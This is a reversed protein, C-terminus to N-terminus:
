FHNTHCKNLHAYRELYFCTPQHAQRDFHRCHGQKVLTRRIDIRNNDTFSLVSVFSLLIMIIEINICLCSKIILVRCLILYFVKM